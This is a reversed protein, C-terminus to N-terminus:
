MITKITFNLKINKIHISPDQLNLIQKNPIAKVKSTGLKVVNDEKIPQWRLSNISYASPNPYKRQSNIFVTILTAHKKIQHNPSKILCLHMVWSSFLSWMCISFFMFNIVYVVVLSRNPKVVGFWLLKKFIFDRNGTKNSPIAHILMLVMGTQNPSTQQGVKGLPGNSGRCFWKGWLNGPM